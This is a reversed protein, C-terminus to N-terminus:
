ANLLFAGSIIRLRRESLEINPTEREPNHLVMNIVNILGLPMTLSLSLFILKFDDYKEILEPRFKFIILFGSAVTGFFASVYLTSLKYNLSRVESLLGM